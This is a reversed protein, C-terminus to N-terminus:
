FGGLVPRCAGFRCEGPTGDSRTCPAGSPKGQSSCAGSGLDCTNITCDNGDDCYTDTGCLCVGNICQGLGLDCIRGDPSTPYECFGRPECVNDTCQNGDDPCTPPNPFGCAIFAPQCTGLFCQGAAGDCNGGEEVPEFVCQGTTGDCGNYTCPDGDDCATAGCAGPFGRLTCQGWHCFGSIGTSTECSLARVVTEAECQGTAPNCDDRTCQADSCVVEYCLGSQAVCVGNDCIGTLSPDGPREVDTPDCPVGHLPQDCIMGNADACGQQSCCNIRGALVEVCEDVPAASVCVDSICAGQDGGGLPNACGSYSEDGICSGLLCQGEYCIGQSGQYDCTFGSVDTLICEGTNAVWAYRQCDSPPAPCPTCSDQGYLPLVLVPILAVWLIRLSRLAPM